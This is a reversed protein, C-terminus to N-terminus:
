ALAYYVMGNWHLAVIFAVVKGDRRAAYIRRYPSLTEGASIEHFLEEWVPCTEGQRNFTECFLRYCPAPDWRDSIEFSQKEAKRINRRVNGEFSGWLEEEN